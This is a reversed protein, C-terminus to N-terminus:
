RQAHPRRGARGKRGMPGARKVASAPPGRPHPRVLSRRSGAVQFPPQRTDERGRGAAWMMVSWCSGRHSLSMSGKEGPTTIRPGPDACFPTSPLQGPHHPTPRDQSRRSTRNFTGARTCLACRPARPRTRGGPPPAARSRPSRRPRRGHLPGRRRRKDLDTAFARIAGSCRFLITPIERKEERGIGGRLAKAVSESVSGGRGAEPAGRAGCETGDGAKRAM